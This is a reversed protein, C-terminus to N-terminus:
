RILSNPHCHLLPRIIIRRNIAGFKSYMYLEKITESRRERLDRASIARPSIACVHFKIVCKILRVILLAFLLGARRSYLKKEKKKKIYPRNSFFSTRRRRTEKNKEIRNNAM